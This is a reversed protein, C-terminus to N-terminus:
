RRAHEDALALVREDDVEALCEVEDIVAKRGDFEVRVGLTGRAVVEGVFVNGREFHLHRGGAQRARAVRDDTAPCRRAQALATQEIRHWAGMDAGREFAARPHLYRAQAHRQYILDDDAELVLVAEIVALRGCVGLESVVDGMRGQRRQDFRLEARGADPRRAVERAVIEDGGEEGADGAQVLRPRHGRGLHQAQVGRNGRDRGAGLVAKADDAAVVGAERIPAPRSSTTSMSSRTAMPLNHVSPM